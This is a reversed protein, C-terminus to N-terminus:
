AGLPRRWKLPNIWRGSRHSSSPPLLPPETVAFDSADVQWGATADDDGAAARTDPWLTVPPLPPLAPMPAPPQGQAHARNARALHRSMAILEEDGTAKCVWLVEADSSDLKLLLSVDVNQGHRRLLLFHLRTAFRFRQNLDV